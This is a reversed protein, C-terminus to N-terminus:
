PTDPHLNISGSANAAITPVRSKDSMSGRHSHPLTSNRPYASSSGRGSDPLQVSTVPGLAPVPGPASAAAWVDDAIAAAAAAPMAHQHTTAHVNCVDHAKTPEELAPM